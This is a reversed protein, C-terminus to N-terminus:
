ATVTYGLARIRGAIDAPAIVAPDFTVQVTHDRHSAAVAAVGPLQGVVRKVANECGSCTMGSVPLTVESTM